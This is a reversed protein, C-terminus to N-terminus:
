AIQILLQLCAPALGIDPNILSYTRTQCALQVFRGMAAISCSCHICLTKLTLNWTRPPQLGAPPGVVLVPLCCAPNDPSSPQGQPPCRGGALWAHCTIDLDPRRSLAIPVPRLGGVDACKFSKCMGPGAVSVQATGDNAIFPSFCVQAVAGHVRRSGHLLGCGHQMSASSIIRAVNRCSCRASSLSATLTAGQLHQCLLVEPLGTHCDHAEAATNCAFSCSAFAVGATYTAWYLHMRLWGHTGEGLDLPGPEMRTWWVPCGLLTCRPQLGHLCYGTPPYGSLEALASIDLSLLPWSSCPVFLVTYRGAHSLGQWVGPSCCLLMTNTM